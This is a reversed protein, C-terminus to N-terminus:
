AVVEYQRRTPYSVDSRTFIMNSQCTGTWRWWRPLSMALQAAAPAYGMGEIVLLGNTAVFRSWAEFLDRLFTTDNPSQRRRTIGLQLADGMQLAVADAVQTKNFWARLNLSAMDLQAPSQGSSHHIAHVTVPEQQEARDQAAAALWASLHGQGCALDVVDGAALDDRVIRYLRRFSEFAPDSPNVPTIAALARLRDNDAPLPEYANM